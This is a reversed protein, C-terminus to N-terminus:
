RFTLVMGRTERAILLTVMVFLGTSSPDMRQANFFFRRCDLLVKIFPANRSGSIQRLVPHRFSRRFSSPPTRPSSGRRRGTASSEYLCSQRRADPSASFTSILIFPPIKALIEGSDSRMLLLTVQLTLPPVQGEHFLSGALQRIFVLSLPHSSSSLFCPSSCSSASRLPNWADIYNKKRRRRFRRM